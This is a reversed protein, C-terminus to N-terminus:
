APRKSLAEDVWWKGRVRIKEARLVDSLTSSEDLPFRDFQTGPPDPRGPVLQHGLPWGLQLVLLERTPRGRRSASMRAAEEPSKVWHRDVPDPDDWDRAVLFWREM